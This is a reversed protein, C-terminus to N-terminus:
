IKGNCDVEAVCNGECDFNNEPGSGGCEGCEDVLADGGCDGFCDVVANGGCEGNCDVEVVCNGECDFNQSPFECSGDNINALTDYNLAYNM